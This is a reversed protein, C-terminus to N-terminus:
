PCLVEEYALAFLVFDADEVMMDSNMDCRDDIFPADVLEMSQLFVGFDVDDVVRDGNFDAPCISAPDLRLRFTALQSSSTSWFGRVITEGDGSIITNRGGFYRPFPFRGGLYSTLPHIGDGDRWVFTHLDYYSMARDFVATTMDDSFQVKATGNWSLPFPIVEVSGGRYARFLGRRRGSVMYAGAIRDGADSIALDTVTSLPVPMTYQQDDLNSILLRGGGVSAMFFRLNPSAAFFHGTGYEPPVRPSIQSGNDILFKPLPDSYSTSSVIVREGDRSVREAISTNVGPLQDYLVMAQEFRFGNQVRRGVVVEGLDSVSLAESGGPGRNPDLFELGAGATWRVAKAISKDDVRVATGVLVEGSSSCSLIDLWKAAPPPQIHEVAPGAAGVHGMVSGVLGAAYVCRVM